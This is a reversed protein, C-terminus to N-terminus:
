NNKNFKQKMERPRTKIPFFFLCILCIQTLNLQKKNFIYTKQKNGPFELSILRAPTAFTYKRDYYSSDCAGCRNKIMKRHKGTGKKIATLSIGTGFIAKKVAFPVFSV